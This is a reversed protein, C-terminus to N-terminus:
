STISAEQFRLASVDLCPTIGFRLHGAEGFLLRHCEHIRIMLNTRMM